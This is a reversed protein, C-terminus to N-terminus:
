KTKEALDRQIKLFEEVTRDIVEAVSPIYHIIGQVQGSLYV